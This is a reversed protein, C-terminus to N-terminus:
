MCDSRELGLAEDFGEEDMCGRTFFCHLLASSVVDHRGHWCFLTDLFAVPTDDTIHLGLLADNILASGVEDLHGFLWPAVRM